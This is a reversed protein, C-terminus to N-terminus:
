NFLRIAKFKKQYSLKVSKWFALYPKLAFTLLSTFEKIQLSVSGDYDVYRKDFAVTSRRPYHFKRGQVMDNEIGDSLVVFEPLM